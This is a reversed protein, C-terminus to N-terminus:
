NSVFTDELQKSKREKKREPLVVSKNKFYINLQNWKSKKHSLYSWSQGISVINKIWAQQM